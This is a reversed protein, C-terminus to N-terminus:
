PAERHIVRLLSAADPFAALALAVLVFTFLAFHSKAHLDSERAPLGHHFGLEDVTGFVAILVGAVILRPADAHFASNITLVQSGGLALHILNELIGPKRERVHYAADLGAYALFPLLVLVLVLARM